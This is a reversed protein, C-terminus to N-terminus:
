LNYYVRTIFQMQFISYTAAESSPNVYYEASYGVFSTVLFVQAYSLRLWIDTM